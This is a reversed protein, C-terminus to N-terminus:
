DLARTRVSNWGEILAKGVVEQDDSADGMGALLLSPGILLLRLGLDRGRAVLGRRLLRLRRNYRCLYFEQWGGGGERERGDMEKGDSFPLAIPLCLKNVMLWVWRVSEERESSSRGEVSAGESVARSRM